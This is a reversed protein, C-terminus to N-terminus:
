GSSWWPLAQLHVISSRGSGRTLEPWKREVLRLKQLIPTTVTGLESPHQPSIGREKQRAGHKNRTRLPGPHHHHEWLGLKM